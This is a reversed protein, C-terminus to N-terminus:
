RLPGFDGIQAQLFHSVPAGNQVRCFSAGTNTRELFPLHLDESKRQPSDSRRRGDGVKGHDLLITWLPPREALGMESSQLPRASVAGAVHPSEGREM